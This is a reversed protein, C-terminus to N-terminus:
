NEKESASFTTWPGAKMDRLIGAQWSFEPHATLFPKALFDEGCPHGAHAMLSLNQAMDDHHISPQPFAPIASLGLTLAASFIWRCGSSFGGAMGDHEAYSTAYSSLM